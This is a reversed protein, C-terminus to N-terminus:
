ATKQLSASSHVCFTPPGEPGRQQCPQQHQHRQHATECCDLGEYASAPGLDLWFDEREEKSPTDDFKM